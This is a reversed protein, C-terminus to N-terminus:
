PLSCRTYETNWLSCLYGENIECKYYLNQQKLTFVAYNHDLLLEQAPEKMHTLQEHITFITKSDSGQPDAVDIRFTDGLTVNGLQKSLLVM